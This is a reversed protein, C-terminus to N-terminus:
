RGVPQPRGPSVPISAYCRARLHEGEPRFVPVKSCELMRSDFIAEDRRLIQNEQQDTLRQIFDSPGTVTGAASVASTTVGLAVVVALGSVFAIARRNM